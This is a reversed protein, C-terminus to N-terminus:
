PPLRFIQGDECRQRDDPRCAALALIESVVGLGGYFGESFARIAYHYCLENSVCLIKDQELFGLFATMESLRNHTEQIVPNELQAEEFLCERVRDLLEGEKGEWKRNELLEKIFTSKM